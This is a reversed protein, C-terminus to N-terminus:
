SYAPYAIPLHTLVEALVLNSVRDFYVERTLCTPLSKPDALWDILLTSTEHEHNTVANKQSTPVDRNRLQDAIFRRPSRKKGVFHKQTRM